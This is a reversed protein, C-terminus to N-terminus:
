KKENLSGFLPIFLNNKFFENGDRERMGFPCKPHSWWSIRLIRSM